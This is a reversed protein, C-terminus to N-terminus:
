APITIDRKVRMRLLQGPPTPAIMCAQRAQSEPEFGPWPTQNHARLETQSLAAKALRLGRTWIGTPGDKM